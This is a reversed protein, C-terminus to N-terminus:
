QYRPQDDGPLPPEGGGRSVIRHFAAMDARVMDEAFPEATVMASVKEAVATVVFQNFSTGDRTRLNEVAAKLLRPLKLQDIGCSATL